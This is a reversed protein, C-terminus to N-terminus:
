SKHKKAAIFSSKLMKSTIFSTFPVTLIIGLSGSIGRMIEIGIDFSNLLQILKLDYAYNLFLTTASGGAFALILTNSMTGMMDRGVNMGSSFLERSSLLPNKEHIENITSAISMGVDMVAGLSSILIGAFLLGGVDASTNQGVFLLSEIESVNYGSIGAIIGFLKAFVGSAIVGFITGACACVSKINVGSVSFITFVTTIVCIISAAFFPSFGRYVLPFFVLFILALAAFLCVASMLGKKGGVWLMAALFLIFFLIIPVTRDLSYVTATMNDGSQSIIVIVNSGVKCAAGFLMGNPSTGSIIEGKLNGSKIQMELQQDGYRNGDEALNDKTIKTVVAREFTRGKTSVLETKEFDNITIIVAIVAAAIIFILLIKSIKSKM